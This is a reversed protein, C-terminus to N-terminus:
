SSLRDLQTIKDIYDEKNIDLYNEKNNIKLNKKELSVKFHNM